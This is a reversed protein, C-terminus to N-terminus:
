TSSAHTQGGPSAGPPSFPCGRSLGALEGTGVRSMASPGGAVRRGWLVALGPPQPWLGFRTRTRQGPASATVVQLLFRAVVLPLLPFVADPAGVYRDWAPTSRVTTPGSEQAPLELHALGWM